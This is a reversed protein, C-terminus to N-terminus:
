AFWNQALLQELQKIERAYITKKRKGLHLTNEVPSCDEWALRINKNEIEKKCLFDPM